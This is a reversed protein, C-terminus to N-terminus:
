RPLTITILTGSKELGSEIKITGGHAKIIRDCISLGLGFGGTSRTRSKDVRYFPEFLHPIENAAIGIGYDRILYELSTGTARLHIDITCHDKASYKIANDILNRLVTQVRTPDVEATVTKESIVLNIKVRESAYFEVLDRTLQALDVKEPVVYGKQGQSRATELIESVMKEMESIDRSLHNKKSDDKVFEVALKMRALPSRLEHSVDILLEEKAQIMSKIKDLSVNFASGLQGFEDPHRISVRQDFDGNGILQAVSTMEKIPRLLSRIALYALILMMSISALLSVISTTSFGFGLEPPAFFVFTSNGLPIPSFALYHNRDPKKRERKDEIVSEVSPLGKVTEFVAGQTEIRIDLGIKKSTEKAIDINPPDGIAKAHPELYQFIAQTMMDRMPKPPGPPHRVVLFVAVNMLLGICIVVFFIKSFISRHM